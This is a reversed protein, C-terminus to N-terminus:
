QGLGYRTMVSSILEKTAPSVQGRVATQKGDKQEFKLLPFQTRVRQQAEELTSRAAHQGYHYLYEFTSDTGLESAQAISRQGDIWGVEAVGPFSGKGPSDSFKMTPQLSGDEHSTYIALKFGSSADARSTRDSILLSGAGYAVLRHVLESGFEACLAREIGALEELSDLGEIVLMDQAPDLYNLRTLERLYYRAQELLDGSDLRLLIPKGTARYEQKLRLTLEIGSMSDILDPLLTVRPLHEIAFRFAQEVSGFRQVFRHGITGVDSMALLGVGADNSSLQFGGGVAIAKLASLHQAETAAGRKGVEIFRRPDGIIQLLVQAQAAVLMPYFARHFVHEFHAILESPGSVNLVPEGPAILNGDRPGRISIPLVGANKEVVWQWLEQDFFPVKTHQYYEKAFELEATSIPLLTLKEVLDELGASILFGHPARRMQLTYTAADAAITAPVAPDLGNRAALPAKELQALYGMTRNYTDTNIVRNRTLLEERVAEPLASFEQWSIEPFELAPKLRDLLRQERAADVEPRLSASSLNISEQTSFEPTM